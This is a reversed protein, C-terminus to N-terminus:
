DDAPVSLPAAQDGRVAFLRVHDTAQAFDHPLEFRFGSKALSDADFLAAVDPRDIGVPAVFVVRDAVTAVVYDARVKQAPLGAWGGFTRSEFAKTVDDVHGGSAKDDVKILTQGDDVFAENDGSKVLRIKAGLLKNMSAHIALDQTTFTKEQSLRQVVEPLDPQPVAYPMGREVLEEIVINPREQAVMRALLDSDPDRWLYIVRGYHESLFPQIATFFSDRFALVTGPKGPCVTAFFTRPTLQLGVGLPLQAQRMQQCDPTLPTTPEEITEIRPERIMRSMDTFFPSKQDAPQVTKFTLDEPREGLSRILDRYAFYGGYNTWHTDTHFYLKRGADAKHALLDATPNVFYPTAGLYSVLEDLRSPGDGKVRTPILEPFITNKEPGVLFRYEIGQSKLWEYRQMLGAKWKALDDPSFHSTRQLDPLSSDDSIFLWEKKGAIVHATGSLHFWRYSMYSHLSLLANRFGFRDNVFTEFDQPFHRLGQANLDGVPFDALNRKESNSGDGSWMTALPVTIAALFVASMAINTFRKSNM